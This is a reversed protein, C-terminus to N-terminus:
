EFVAEGSRIEDLLVRGSRECDNFAQDAVRECPGCLALSMREPQERLIRDVLVQHAICFASPVPRLLSLGMDSQTAEEDSDLASTSDLVHSHLVFRGVLRNMTCRLHQRVIQILLDAKGKLFRGIVIPQSGQEKIPELREGRM